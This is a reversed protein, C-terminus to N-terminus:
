GTLESFDDNDTRLRKRIGRLRPQKQKPLSAEASGIPYRNTRKKGEEGEYDSLPPDNAVM